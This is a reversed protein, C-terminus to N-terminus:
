LGLEKCIAKASQSGDSYVVKGGRIEDILPDRRKVAAQIQGPSALVLYLKGLMVLSASPAFDAVFLEDDDDGPFGALVELLHIDEEVDGRFRVALLLPQDEQQRHAELLQKVARENLVEATHKEAITNMM